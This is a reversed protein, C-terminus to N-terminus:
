GAHKSRERLLDLFAGMLQDRTQATRASTEFQADEQRQEERAILLRVAAEAAPLAPLSAIVATLTHFLAAVQGNLVDLAEPDIQM